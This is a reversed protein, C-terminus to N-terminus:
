ETGGRRVIELAGLAGCNECAINDNDRYPCDVKHMKCIPSTAYKKLEAVVKEVDYATPVSEIAKYLKEQKDGLPEYGLDMIAKQVALIVASEKLLRDEKAMKELIDATEEFNQTCNSM